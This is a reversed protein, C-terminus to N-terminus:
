FKKSNKGAKNLWEAAELRSLVIIGASSVRMSGDKKGYKSDAGGQIRLFYEGDAKKYLEERVYKLANVNYENEWVGVLEAKNTDYTKGQINKRTTTKNEDVRKPKQKWKMEAYERSIFWQKGIRALATNPIVQQRTIYNRIASATIKHHRQLEDITIWEQLFLQLAKQAYSEEAM